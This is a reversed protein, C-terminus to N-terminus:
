VINASHARVRYLIQILGANGLWRGINDAKAKDGFCLSTGGERSDRELCCGGVWIWLSFRWMEVGLDM